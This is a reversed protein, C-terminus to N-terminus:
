FSLWLGRGVTLPQMSRFRGKESVSFINSIQISAYGGTHPDQQTVPCRRCPWCSHFHLNSHRTHRQHHGMRVVTIVSHEHLPVIDGMQWRNLFDPSNFSSQACMNAGFCTFHPFRMMVWIVSSSSRCSAHNPPAFRACRTFHRWRRILASCRGPVAVNILHSHLWWTLLVHVWTRM